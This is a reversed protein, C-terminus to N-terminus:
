YRKLIDRAIVMKMVETAGETIRYSRQQRWMKEIPLDTTLAIGGHIQMCMDAAKFAMEDAFYKCMYAETRAQHGAEILNAARYVLLRAAELEVYMDTLMFQIAQREALPKGFTVRQKAYSTAMELCREAVGLARAGHHVRGYGLWKQAFKFGEGEAGVMNKAPVRVNDFVIEWPRDGMMTEYQTALTIGPSDMDVLFSSIGGRSGKSRDTAAMLQIFDADGAGTIFRKTGNIIYDDGDRVATTRMSGPDSGADPETQGFCAIKEGRLAPLLYKEKLEGELDYLNSRIHPGTIGHGRAPLAITRAFEEWVVVSAMLGMGLGGYEEPVDMMWLGLEKTRAEFKARWEPKLKEGDCTQRENPIMDENVFRRLQARLMQLEEPLSFDM